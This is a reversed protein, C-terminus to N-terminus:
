STLTRIKAIVQEILEISSSEIFIANRKACDVIRIQDSLVVGFTKMENLLIVEFGWGKKKSTIPCILILSSIQNYSEPSIVIVLRFGAQESGVQPNLQLKLIDGRQPVRGNVKVM